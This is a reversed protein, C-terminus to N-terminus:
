RGLSRGPKHFHRQKDTPVEGEAQNPGRDVTTVRRRRVIGQEGTLLFFGFPWPPDLLGFLVRFLPGILQGAILPFLQRRQPGLVV